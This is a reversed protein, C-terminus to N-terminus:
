FEYAGADPNDQDRIKGTLDEPLTPIYVGLNRALSLSDLQYNDATIDIFLPTSFDINICNECDQEYFNSFRGEQSALFSNDTKVISNRVLVDWQEPEEGLFGDIFILENSSSGSLISNTIRARMPSSICSGNDDCVFNTLAISSADVGYNAITTHELILDGGKNFQVSNGFNSHFVSNRITAKAQYALLAPGGSFAIVSNEISLESLSDMTIGVITNLIHTHQIINNTSGAGLILGRYKAPSDSFEEELRDTQIVIPEERTGLFHLASNNTTLIIGDNFFDGNQSQNFRQVGGHLYIRTGPQVRLICDDIVISGYIVVPLNNPIDIIGSNCSLGLFEGKNFDNLYLANQGFALLKISKSTSGTEFVIEDDVIFPSEDLSSSPDVTVEVFVYISDNPWIIADLVEPGRFGDVNINFTVGTTGEVFIRDIQIPQSLDNYIKVSRTASGVSTFVTDFSVTDTEFRLDIRDGVIFESEVECAFLLFIVGLFAIYKVM